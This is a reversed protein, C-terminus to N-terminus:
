VHARGIKGKKRRRRMKSKRSREKKKKIGGEREIKLKEVNKGITNTAQLLWCMNGCIM